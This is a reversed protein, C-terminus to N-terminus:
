TVSFPFPALEPTREAVSARTQGHLLGVLDELREKRRLKFPGTHSQGDAAGDNFRMNAPKHAASFEGRPGLKQKLRGGVGLRM